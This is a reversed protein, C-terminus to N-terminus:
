LVEKLIDGITHFSKNFYLLGGTKKQAEDNILIDEVKGIWIEHNEVKFVEKKKCILIREAINLLPLSINKVKCNYFKYDRISDLDAFPKTHIINGMQDRKPRTGGAFVRALWASRELPPLVHIAFYNLRHLYESTISPVQLNFQVLPKPYVCLSCVSSMTMGHLDLASGEGEFPATVIMAQSGFTSMTEKFVDHHAQQVISRSHIFRKLMSGTFLKTTAIKVM